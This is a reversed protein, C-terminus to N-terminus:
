QRRLELRSKAPLDVSHEGVGVLFEDFPHAHAVTTIEKVCRQEANMSLIRLQASMKWETQTYRRLSGQVVRSKYNKAREAARQKAEEHKKLASSM